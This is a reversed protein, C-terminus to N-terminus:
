APAHSAAMPVTMQSSLRQISEKAFTNGTGSRGAYQILNNTFSSDTDILTLM